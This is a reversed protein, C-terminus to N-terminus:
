VLVDIKKGEAELKRIVEKSVADIEEYNTMDLKAIEAREPHPCSEQVRKLEALNRASLIVHAGHSNFEYALHEGIGSSAGTIWVTKGTYDPTTNKRRIYAVLAYAALLFVVSCIIISIM